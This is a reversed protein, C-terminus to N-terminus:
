LDIEMGDQEQEPRKEQCLDKNATMLIERVKDTEIIQKPISHYKTESLYSNETIREMLTDMSVAAPIEKVQKLVEMTNNKGLRLQRHLIETVDKRVILDTDKRNENM